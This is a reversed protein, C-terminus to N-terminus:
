LCSMVMSTEATQTRGHSNEPLFKDELRDMWERYRRGAAEYLQWSEDEEYYMMRAKHIICWAYDSPVHPVDTDSALEKPKLVVEARLVFDRSSVPIFHIIGANDIAFATPLMDSTDISIVRQTRYETWPVPTLPSRSQDDRVTLTTLNIREIDSHIIAPDTSQLNAAVQFDIERRMFTFDDWETEVERSAEAVYECVLAMRGTQNVVTDPKATHSGSVGARRAVRQCLELYNM